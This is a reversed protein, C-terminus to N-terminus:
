SVLHFDNQRLRVIERVTNSASICREGVAVPETCIVALTKEVDTGFLYQLPNFGALDVLASQSVLCVYNTEEPTCILKKLLWGSPDDIVLKAMSGDSLKVIQAVTGCQDTIDVDTMAYCVQVRGNQNPVALVALVLAICICLVVVIIGYDVVANVALRIGSIVPTIRRSIRASPSGLKKDLAELGVCAVVVLQVMCYVYLCFAYWVMKDLRPWVDTFERFFQKWGGNRMEKFPQM